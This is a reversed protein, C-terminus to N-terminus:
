ESTPLFSIFTRGNLPQVFHPQRDLWSTSEYNTECYDRTRKRIAGKRARDSTGTRFVAHLVGVAMLKATGALNARGDKMWQKKGVPGEEEFVSEDAIDGLPHFSESWQVDRWDCPRKPLADLIARRTHMAVVLGLQTRWKM